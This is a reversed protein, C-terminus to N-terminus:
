QLARFWAPSTEPPHFYRYLATAIVVLGLLILYFGGPGISARDGPASREWILTLGYLSAGVLEAVVLVVIVIKLRAGKM